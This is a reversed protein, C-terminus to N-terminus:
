DDEDEEDDCPTIHEYMKDCAYLFNNRFVAFTIKQDLYDDYLKVCDYYLFDKIWCIVDFYNYFTEGFVNEHNWVVYDHNEIVDTSKIYDTFLNITGTILDFSIYFNSSEYYYWTPANLIILRM